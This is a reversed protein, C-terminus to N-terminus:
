VGLYWKFYIFFIINSTSIFRFSSALCMLLFLKSRKLTLNSSVRSNVSNASTRLIQTTTHALIFHFFPMLCQTISGNGMNFLRKANISLMYKNVHQTHKNHVDQKPSIQPPCYRDRICM